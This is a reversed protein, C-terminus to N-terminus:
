DRGAAPACLAARSSGASVRQAGTIMLVIYRPNPTTLLLRRGVGLRSEDRDRGHVVSSRHFRKIQGAGLIHLGGPWKLTNGCSLLMILCSSPKILDRVQNVAQARRTCAAQGWLLPSYPQHYLFQVRQVM